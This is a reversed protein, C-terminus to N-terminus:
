DRFVEMVQDRTEDLAPRLYPIPEMGPWNPDYPGDGAMPSAEGRRGTGFEAYAAHDCDFIVTGTVSSGDDVAEGLKGSARLEGSRVHVIEQAAELVIQQAQGVRSALTARIKSLAADSNGPTFTSTAKLPM